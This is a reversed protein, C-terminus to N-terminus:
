RDEAKGYGTLAILRATAGQPTQRLRGALEYGDMEPLGLDLLVVEPNFSAVRELAQAPTYATETTHGVLTLLSALSAAVKAHDDMILIRRPSVKFEEIETIADDSYQLLPLRIKFVSGHGLGTSHADVLGGHMEIFGKVGSVGIGLGGGQSRALTRDSQVFPDFIHPLLDPSIGIGIDSIEIIATEQEARTQVRITGGTDTYKAANILLNEVCQVLRAFDADM